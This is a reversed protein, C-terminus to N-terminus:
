QWSVQVSFGWFVSSFSRFDEGSPGSGLAHQSYPTGAQQSPGAAAGQPQWVARPLSHEWSCFMQSALSVVQIKAAVM